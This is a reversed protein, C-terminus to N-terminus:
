KREDRTKRSMENKVNERIEEVDDDLDFGYLGAWMMVDPVSLGQVYTESISYYGNTM